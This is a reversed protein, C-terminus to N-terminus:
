PCAVEIKARRYFQRMFTNFLPKPVTWCAWKTTTECVIYHTTNLDIVLWGDLEVNDNMLVRCLKKEKALKKLLEM